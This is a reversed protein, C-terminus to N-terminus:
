GEAPDGGIVVNWKRIQWATVLGNTVYPDSEAFGAVVSEDETSWVFLARDFPESFAGAMLLEGREHAARALGLHDDRLAARRELYDDALDYILALV